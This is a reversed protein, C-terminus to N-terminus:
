AFEEESSFRWNKSIIKPTLTFFVMVLNDLNQGITYFLFVMIATVLYGTVCKVKLVWSLDATSSFHLFAVGYLFAAIILITGITEVFGRLYNILLTTKQYKKIARQLAGEFVDDWGVIFKGEEFHQNLVSTTANLDNRISILENCCIVNWYLILGFALWAQVLAMTILVFVLGDVVFFIRSSTYQHVMPPPLPYYLYNIPKDPEFFLEIDLVCISSYIVDFEVFPTLFWSLYKKADAIVSSQKFDSGTSTSETIFINDVHDIM